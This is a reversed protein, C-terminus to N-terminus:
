CFIRTPEGPKIGVTLEEMEICGIEKFDNTTYTKANYNPMLVILIENDAFEEDITATCYSKEIEGADISVAIAQVHSLSILLAIVIIMSVIGIIKSKYKM